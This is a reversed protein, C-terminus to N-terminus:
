KNKKKARIVDYYILMRREEKTLERTSRGILKNDADYIYDHAHEGKKGYPHMKANGHNNNSIQKIQKGQNDYYNREVGGKKSTKQTISNPSSNLTTKEVQIIDKGVANKLTHNIAKEEQKKTVAKTSKGGAIRGLGDMYVREIQEPLKMKKSFDKYQNLTNLYRAQAAVITDSDANGQKLNKINARQARMTTEMQRQAQSAQYANYSKGKYEHQEQEKAELEELQEDTYTRTSFGDVFAYYSHKCNWGCLGREEGLECM